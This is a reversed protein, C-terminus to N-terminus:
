IADRAGFLASGVRVMTAGAAVADDLDDTMGMSCHAVALDDRLARLRQFSGIIEVRTAGSGPPSAVGMVGVVDLGAERCQEALVPAHAFTAGGRGAIGALDVQVMVSMGPARKALESVLSTRDVTQVVQAIPAVIRVKNSQLQGIFHVRAGLEAFGPTLSKEVLEQAYNEGLDVLGAAVAAHLVEIPHRKTVGVITVDVGGARAIRARLQDLRGAIVDALDDTM